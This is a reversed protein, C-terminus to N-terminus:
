LKSLRIVKCKLLIFSKNLINKNMLVLVIFLSIWIFSFLSYYEQAYIMFLISIILVVTTLSYLKLRKIPKWIYIAFETRLIFFIWFSVATAIAAGEGGYNPVLLYNGALNCIFAIISALMSLTSNRMVGLGIVTTESLTYLLPAALCVVLIFPTEIYKEPLVYGVIWSFLGALIFVLIVIFLLYERVDDVKSLDEGDAIWKYVIPVWITTFISQIITAVGAFSVAVSYMGLDEFTSYHQIFVKDMATLGWYAVGGLILPSGFRLMQRELKWDFKTKICPIWTKRTNFSFIVLVSLISIVHAIILFYFDGNLELQYIIAICILFIIKPLIQSLSYAGGRQEMRLVLSLFRNLFSSSIYILIFQTYLSSSIDFMLNSLFEGKLYFYLGILALLLVGPLVSMKFLKPKDNYENYERVYSQDLGLSFLLISFSSIVTLMSIRGIDEPTYLWTIIPLSIFGLLAGGIPGISFALINKFKM